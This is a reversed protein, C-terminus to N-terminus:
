NYLTHETALLVSHGLLHQELSFRHNQHLLVRIVLGRGLDQTHRWVRNFGPKFALEACAFSGKRREHLTMLTIMSDRFM